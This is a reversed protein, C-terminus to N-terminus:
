QAPCPFTSPAPSAEVRDGTLCCRRGAPGAALRTGPAPGGRPRRCPRVTTDRHASAERLLAAVRGHERPPVAAVTPLIRTLARRVVRTGRIDAFLAVDHRRALDALVVLDTDPEVVTVTWGWGRLEDLAQRDVIGDPGPVVLVARVHGAPDVGILNTDWSQVTM